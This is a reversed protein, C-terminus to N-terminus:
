GRKRREGFLDCRRDNQRPRRVASGVTFCGKRPPPQKKRTPTTKWRWNLTVTKMGTGISDKESTNKKSSSLKKPSKRNISLRSMITTKIRTRKPIIMMASSPARTNTLGTTPSRKRRLFRARVTSLAPMRGGSRPRDTGRFRSSIMMRKQKKQRKMKQATLPAPIRGGSRPRDTGRFRSSTM